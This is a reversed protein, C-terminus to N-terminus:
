TNMLGLGHTNATLHHILHSRDVLRDREGVPQQAIGEGVRRAAFSTLQM